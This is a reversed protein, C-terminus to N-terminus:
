FIWVESFSDYFYLSARHKPTQITSKVEHLQKRRAYSYTLMHLFQAILIASYCLWLGPM